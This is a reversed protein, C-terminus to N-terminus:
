KELRRKFRTLRASLDQIVQAGQRMFDRIPQVDVPQRTEPHPALPKAMAILWIVLAVHFSATRVVNWGHFYSELSQQSIANNLVQVLSYVLLGAAVLRQPSQLPVDYRRSLALLIVLVVAATLEVDRELTLVFPPIRPVQAMAALAARLLLTFATLTLVWKLVVRFGPYPCSASWALEGISAARGALLVAQAVWFSYFYLKSTYGATRYVFYIFAERAALVTLYATFVPLRGYLHRWLALGCLVLELIFASYWLIIQTTTLGMTLPTIM